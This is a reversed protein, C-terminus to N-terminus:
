KAPVALAPSHPLATSVARSHVAPGLQAQRVAYLSVGPLGPGGPLGKPLPLRGCAQHHLWHARILHPSHSFAWWQWSLSCSTMLWLYSKPLVHSWPKRVEDFNILYSKVWCTLISQKWDDVAHTQLHCDKLAGQRVESSARCMRWSLSTTRETSATSPSCRCTRWINAAPM